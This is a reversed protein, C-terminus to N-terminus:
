EALRGAAAAVGLAFPLGVALTGVLTGVPAPAGLFAPLSVALNAAAGVAAVAVLFTVPQEGTQRWSRTVALPLSAGDTVAAPVLLTRGGVFTASLFVGYTLVGRSAAVVTLAAAALSVVLEFAAIQPAAWAVRRRLSEGADPGYPARSIVVVTAAAGVLATVGATAAFGALAGPALGLTAWPTTGVPSVVGPVPQTHVHLWGETVATSWRVPVPGVLRLADAVAGVVAAALFPVALRPRRRLTEGADRAFVLLDPRVM